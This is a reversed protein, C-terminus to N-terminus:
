VTSLGFFENLFAATMELGQLGDGPGGIGIPETGTIKATVVAKSGTVLDGIKTLGLEKQHYSVRGPTWPREGSRQRKPRSM